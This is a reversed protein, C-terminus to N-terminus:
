IGINNATLEPISIGAVAIKTTSLMREALEATDEDTVEISRFMEFM